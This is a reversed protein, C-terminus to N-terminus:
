WKSMIACFSIKPSLTTTSKSGTAQGPWAVESQSVQRQTPICSVSVVGTPRPPEPEAGGGPLLLELRGDDVVVDDAGDPLPVCDSKPWHPPM